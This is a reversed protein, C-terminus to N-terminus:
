CEVQPQLVVGNGYNMIPEATLSLENCQIRKCETYPYVYSGKTQNRVSSTNAGSSIEDIYVPRLQIAVNLPQGSTGWRFYNLTFSFDEMASQNAKLGITYYIAGKVLTEALSFWPTTTTDRGPRPGERRGSGLSGRSGLWFRRRIPAELGQPTVRFTRVQAARGAVVSIDGSEKFWEPSGALLGWEAQEWELNAATVSDEGADPKNPMKWAFLSEDMSPSALIIEQLRRFARTGSEGYVFPMTINFIGIMSYAMDEPYTTRRGSMWSMKVAICADSLQLQGALFPTSIGTVESIAAALDKKTGIFNWEMDYFELESPALMEQLTWGRSFWRSLHYHQGDNSNGFVHLGRQSRRHINQVDSLYTICLKADRYWRFMSNIAEAYERTDTKDICCTDMWLWKLGRDRAVDCAGRIKDLQPLIFPRMGFRLASTYRHIDQFTIEKNDGLWRHSLIAYPESQIRSQPIYEVQFTSTNLLRM